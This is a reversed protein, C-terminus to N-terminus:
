RNTSRFDVLKTEIPVDHAAKVRLLAEFPKVDTGRTSNLRQLLDNLTRQDCVYDVAAQTSVTSRGALILTWHFHDLGPILAVIAYDADEGRGKSLPPYVGTEGARPHLDVIVGSWHNGGIPVRRFVFEQTTPIQRLTLNETPSGVFILNHNRAEDFTFWGGPKILLQHGSRQFLRDLEVVGLLEGVGTYHQEIQDRSDRYPDFYRFGTESDGVFSANSFVVITEQTGHLFPKWFTQFGAPLPDEAKRHLVYIVSGFALLAIVLIALAIVVGRQIGFRVKPESSLPFLETVPSTPEQPVTRREFSLTHSRKPMNVLIPDYIGASEYYEALKIRLRGYQVRVSSDLQPDFDSPRGLAETAIQHEKLHDAPSNLSHEALYQLLKCLTESRELLPSRVLRDIQAVCELPDPRAPM